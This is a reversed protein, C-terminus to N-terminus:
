LAHMVGYTVTLYTYLAKNNKCTLSTTRTPSLTRTEHEESVVMLTQQNKTTIQQLKDKSKEYSSLVNTSIKEGWKQKVQNDYTQALCPISQGSSCTSSCEAFM